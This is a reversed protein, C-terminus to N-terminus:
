VCTGGLLNKKIQLRARCTIATALKSSLCCFGLFRLLLVLFAVGVCGVFAAHIWLGAIETMFSELWCWSSLLIRCLLCLLDSCLQSAKCLWISLECILLSFFARPDLALLEAHLRHRHLTIRVRATTHGESSLWLRTGQCFGKSWM